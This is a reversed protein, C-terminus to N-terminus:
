KAVMESDEPGLRNPTLPPQEKLWESLGARHAIRALDVRTPANLKAGLQSRHWEVTKDSRYIRKAIEHNTLGEGIYALVELERRSLQSLPGMDTHKACVVHGHPQAPSGPLADAHRVTYVVSGPPYDEFEDLSRIVITMRTGHWLEHVVIPAAQERALRCFSMREEGAQRPLIENLRKGIIMDPLRGAYLRAFAENAEMIKGDPLMIAYAIGADGLALRYATHSDETASQM